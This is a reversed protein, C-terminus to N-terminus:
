RLPFRARVQYSVGGAGSVSQLLVFDTATWSVPPLTPLDAAPCRAHRLLTVHPKYESRQDFRFGHATLAQELTRVLRDLEPPPAAPAAHVINNHRWCHARDLTLTLRSGQLPRAADELAPLREAAVNGLFVLTLHLNRAPAARGGGLKKLPAQWAALAARTHADPWLAFFVRASEPSHADAM